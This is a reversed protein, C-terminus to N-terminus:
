QQKLVGLRGDGLAGVQGDNDGGDRVHDKRGHGPRHGQSLGRAYGWDVAGHLVDAVAGDGPSALVSQEVVTLHTASITARHVDVPYGHFTLVDRPRRCFM